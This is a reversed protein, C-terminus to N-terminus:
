ITFSLLAILSLLPLCPFPAMSGDNSGDDSKMMIQSSSSRSSGGIRSSNENIATMFEEYHEKEEPEQHHQQELTNEQNSNSMSDSMEAMMRDKLKNSAMLAARQKENELEMSREKVARNNDLNSQASFDGRNNRALRQNALKLERLKEELRLIEDLFHLM